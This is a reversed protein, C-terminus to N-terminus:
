KVADSNFILYVGLLDDSSYEAVFIRTLFGDIFGVCKKTSATASSNYSLYIKKEYELAVACDGQIHLLGALADLYRCDYDFKKWNDQRSYVIKSM